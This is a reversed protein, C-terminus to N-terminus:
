KTPHEVSLKTSSHYFNNGQEYVNRHLLCATHYYMDYSNLDFVNNIHSKAIVIANRLKRNDGTCRWQNTAKLIVQILAVTVNSSYKM